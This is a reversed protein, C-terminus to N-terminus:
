QRRDRRMELPVARCSARRTSTSRCACAAASRRATRWCRRSSVRCTPAASRRPGAAPLPPPRADAGAAGRGPRARSIGDGQPAARRLGQAHGEAEPAADARHRHHRRAPRLAAPRGSRRAAIEREYFAERDGRRGAGADGSAGAPLDAAPRPEQARRARGARDGPSLLQFTREAARPDGNALGLDADVVGVLTLKPFNHGKAVLQTGIVIDAEGKAIAELELRLRSCAAWSTPPCCSPARTPFLTSSRRPSGSSARARLRGPPRAHRMAPLGGAADRQPRLPPLRAAASATSSWGPRATAPVPLPPRLGPVADAACLRAPQPVAAGARRARADAKMASVLLPSLFGGARRRTAGCTSRRPHGAAGRRRLADAPAVRGYRGAQANVQSEISPTASALVVPFSASTAGAGGGHRACQLLRPGGAQLCPRAGRRRRDPRSRPVAPVAGLARRGGGAGRRRGGAALGARAHAAARRFAVRGPARRLPGRLARPVARTLAIEPLLILM